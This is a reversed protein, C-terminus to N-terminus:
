KTKRRGFLRPRQHYHVAVPTNQSRSGTMALRFAFSYSRFCITIDISVVDFPYLLKEYHLRLASGAGAKSTYGLKNALEGWKKEECIKTFGGMKNVTKHLTYLCLIENEVRPIRLMIGQLEWFKSLKELFNSRVRTSASLENIRQRRPRFKFEEVDLAFPPQFSAPPRIKVIGYKEGEARISSIYGIPDEFQEETPEFVPCPPPKYFEPPRWM